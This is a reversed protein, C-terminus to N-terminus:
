DCRVMTPVTVRFVETEEALGKLRHAGLSEFVLGSGTSLDRVTRSAIVEGPGALAGVRAPAVEMESEAGSIQVTRFGSAQALADALLATKGIGPEGRIVLVGSRGQRASEVLEALLTTERRRGLLPTRPHDGSM